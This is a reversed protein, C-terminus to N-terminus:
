DGGERAAHISISNVCSQASTPNVDGGERAAHISIPLRYGVASNGNDGGERAAHISIEIKFDM